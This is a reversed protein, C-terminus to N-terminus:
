KVIREERWTACRTQSFSAADSEPTNPQTPNNM